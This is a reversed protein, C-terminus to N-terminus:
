ISIFWNILLRYEEKFKGPIHPRKADAPNTYLAQNIEDRSAFNARSFNVSAVLPREYNLARAIVDPDVVVNVQGIKSTIQAGKENIKGLERVKRNKYFNAVLGKIFGPNNSFSYALGQATIRQVCIHGPRISEVDIHRENKVGRKM